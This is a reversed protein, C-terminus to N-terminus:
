VSSAFYRSGNGISVDARRVLSHRRHRPILGAILDGWAEGKHQIASYWPSDARDFLWRWDRFFRWRHSIVL